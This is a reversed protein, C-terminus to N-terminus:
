GEVRLRSRVGVWGERSIERRDYEELLRGTGKAFYLRKMAHEEAPLTVLVEDDSSYVVLRVNPVEKAAKTVM